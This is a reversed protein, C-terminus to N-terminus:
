QLVYDPYFDDATWFIKHSVKHKTNPQAVYKKSSQFMSVGNFFGSSQVERVEPKEELVSSRVKWIKDFDM